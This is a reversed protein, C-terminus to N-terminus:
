RPPTWSISIPGAAEQAQKRVFELQARVMIEGPLNELREIFDPFGEIAKNLSM